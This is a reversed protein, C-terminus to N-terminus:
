YSYGEKQITKSDFRLTYEIEKPASMAVTCAVVNMEADLTVPIEFSSNGETNVPSYKEGNVLMYTYNPSSWTIQAFDAGDKRTLVARSEVSAKGSGGTLTVAIHCREFADAPINNSQFVVTHDYWQERRISWGACDLEADLASVPITFSHREGNLTFEHHNATDGLAEAGTGMYLKGYGQGSLTVDASM